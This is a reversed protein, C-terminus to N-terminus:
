LGGELYRAIAIVAIFSLLAYIIAVDILWTRNYVVGLVVLLATTITTAADLAIVRDGATPGKVARLFSLLFAFSIVFVAGQLFSLEMM